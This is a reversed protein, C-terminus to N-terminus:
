GQRAKASLIHWPNGSAEHPPIKVPANQRSRGAQSFSSAGSSCCSCSDGTSTLWRPLEQEGVGHHSAGVQCGKEEEKLVNGRSSLDKTGHPVMLVTDEKLFGQHEVYPTNSRFVEGHREDEPQCHMVDLDEVGYKGQVKSVLAGNGMISQARVLMGQRELDKAERKM